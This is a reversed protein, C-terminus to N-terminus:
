EEGLWFSESLEANFDDSMWIGPFLGPIRQPQVSPETAQHAQIYTVIQQKEEPTLDDITRFLTQLDTM